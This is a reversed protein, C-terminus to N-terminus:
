TEKDWSGWSQLFKCSKHWIGSFRQIVTLKMWISFIKIELSFFSVQFPSSFSSLLFFLLSPLFSPLSFFPLHSDWSRPHTWKKQKKIHIIPFHSHTILFPYCTHPFFETWWYIFGHPVTSISLACFSQTCDSLSRCTGITNGFCKSEEAERGKLSGIGWCM